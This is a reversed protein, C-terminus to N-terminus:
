EDGHLYELVKVTQRSAIAQVVRGAIEHERAQQKLNNIREQARNRDPTISIKGEKVLKRAIIGEIPHRECYDTFISQPIEPIM